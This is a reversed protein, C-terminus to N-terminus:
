KHHGHSEKKEVKKTPEARQGFLITRVQPILNDFCLDLRSDLTNRCVISGNRASLVVGGCCSAGKKNKQPAAPLYDNSVNVKVTPTVGTATKIFEQYLKIAPELQAKVIKEDEKRCQCVVSNETIIMLSQAILYKVLDPYRDNKAVESLQDTVEEKLIKVVTDRERMKAVRAESARQSKEIRKKVIREKKMKTYKDKLEASRTREIQLKEANFLNETDRAIEQAREEAEKKIFGIMLSIQQSAQQPNM